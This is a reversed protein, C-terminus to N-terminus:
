MFYFSPGLYFTQSVTGEMIIDLIAECFKLLKHQITISSNVNFIITYVINKQYEM